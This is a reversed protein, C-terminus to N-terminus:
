LSSVILVLYVVFDHPKSNFFHYEVNNTLPMLHRRFLLVFSCDVENYLSWCLVQRVGLKM